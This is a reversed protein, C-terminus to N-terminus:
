GHMHHQLTAFARITNAVEQSNFDSLRELAEHAVADFFKPAPHTLTAFAWVTNAVGYSNFEDM